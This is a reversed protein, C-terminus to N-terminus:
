ARPVKKCYRSSYGYGGPEKLLVDGFGDSFIAKVEYAPIDDGPILSPKVWDGVQFDCGGTEETWM